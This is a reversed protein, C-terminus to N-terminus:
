EDDSAEWEALTIEFFSLIHEITPWYVPAQDGYYEVPYTPTGVSMMDRM